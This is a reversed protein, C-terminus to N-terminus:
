PSTLGMTRMVPLFYHFEPLPEACGVKQVAKQVVGDGYAAKQDQRHQGQRGKTRREDRRM